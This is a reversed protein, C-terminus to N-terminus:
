KREVSEAIELLLQLSARIALLSAGNLACFAGAVFLGGFMDPTIPSDGGTATGLLGVIVAFVILLIAAVHIWFFVFLTDVILRVQKQPTM